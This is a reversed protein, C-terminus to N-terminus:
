LARDPAALSQALRAHARGGVSPAGVAREVRPRPPYDSGHDGASPLGASQWDRLRRWCTMGSGCGLEQPVMEWPIGRTLVFVLGSLAARDSVRPRGSKPQPVEPPLPPEIVAWLEDSVLPNSM